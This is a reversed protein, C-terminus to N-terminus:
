SSRKSENHIRQLIDIADVIKDQLTLALMKAADCKSQMEKIFWLRCEGMIAKELTNLTM